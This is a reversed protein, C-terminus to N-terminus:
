SVLQDQHVPFVRARETGADARRAWDLLLLWGSLSMMVELPFRHSPTVYAIRADPCTDIGVVVHLGEEDLLVPVLQAGASRLAWAGSM